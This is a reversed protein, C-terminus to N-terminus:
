LLSQCAVVVIRRRNPQFTTRKGEKEKEKKKKGQGEFANRRSRRGPSVCLACRLKTSMGMQIDSSPFLLLFPPSLSSSSYLVVLSYVITQPLRACVCLRYYLSDLRISDRGEGREDDIDRFYRVGLFSASFLASPGSLFHSKYM